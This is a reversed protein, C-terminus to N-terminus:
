TAPHFEIIKGTLYERLDVSSDVKKDQWYKKNVGQWGVFILGEAPKAYIYNTHSGTFQDQGFWKRESVEQYDRDAETTETDAMYVTGSGTPYVTVADYAWFNKKDSNAQAVTASLMMALATLMLKANTKSIILQKM